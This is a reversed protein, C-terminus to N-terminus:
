IVRLENFADLRDMYIKFSFEWGKRNGEIALTQEPDKVYLKNSKGVGYRPKPCIPRNSRSLITKLMPEIFVAFLSVREVNREHM